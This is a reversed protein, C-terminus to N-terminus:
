RSVQALGALAEGAREVMQTVVDLGMRQAAFGLYGTNVYVTAWLFGVYMTRRDLVEDTADAWAEAYLDFSPRSPASISALDLMAPGLRANGWDIIKSGSGDVLVNNAHMDGHVLTRPLWDLARLLVPDDRVRDVLAMPARLQADTLLGSLRMSVHRCVRRWLERDIVPLGRVHVGVYHAHLRALSAIVEDSVDAETRLTNGAYFPTMAWPGDADTGTALLEPLATAGTVEGLAHLAAVEADTARKRLVTLTDRGGDPLRVLLELREVLSSSYGGAVPLRDVVEVSAGVGYQREIWGDGVLLM